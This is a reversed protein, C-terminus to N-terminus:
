TMTHAPLLSLKPNECWVLREHIGVGPEMTLQVVKKTLVAGDAVLTVQRAM